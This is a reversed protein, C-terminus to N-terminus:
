RRKKPPSATGSGSREEDEVRRDDEKMKRIEEETMKATNMPLTGGCGFSGLMGLLLSWCLFRSM